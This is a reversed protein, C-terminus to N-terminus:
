KLIYWITGSVQVANSSNIVFSDGANLCNLPLQGYDLVHAGASTFTLPGSLASSGSKYTINTVDAIALFFQLVRVTQGMVGPIVTNDGSSNFNVPAQLVQAGLTVDYIM